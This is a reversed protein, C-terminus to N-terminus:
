KTIFVKRDKVIVKNEEFLKIAEPLIKHEVKLIRKQLIEPTDDPLVKVSKQIVIPGHDYEEDVLHVSAGSLKAGYDIVAQHVNLGYMGKGCFSPLLAPHINLIRNSFKRVIQPDLMKMYGATIILDIKFEDLLAIFTQVFEEESQFKAQSLHYGAIKNKRAIELAGSKSNNSIILVVKSKIFKLKQANLISQLNSGRGSALVCLKL